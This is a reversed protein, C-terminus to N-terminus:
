KSIETILMQMVIRSKLFRDFNSICIVLLFSQVITPIPTPKQLHDTQTGNLEICRM